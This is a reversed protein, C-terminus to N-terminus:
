LNRITSKLVSENSSTFLMRYNSAKEKHLNQSTKLPYTISSVIRQVFNELCFGKGRHIDRKMKNQHFVQPGNM